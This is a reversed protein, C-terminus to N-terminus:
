FFFNYNGWNKPTRGLFTGDRKDYIAYRIKQKLPLNYDEPKKFGWSYEVPQKGHKKHKKDHAGSMRVSGRVAM